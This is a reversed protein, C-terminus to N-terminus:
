PLVGYDPPIVLREKKSVQSEDPTTRTMGLDKKTLGCAGLFLLVALLVCIKNM